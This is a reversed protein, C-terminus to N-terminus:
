GAEEEAVARVAAVFREADALLDAAARLDTVGLAEYDSRQRIRFADELTRGVEQPVRGTAIFLHASRRHTGSHTKPSEGEGLLAATAAYYTAYYARNVATEGDGRDLNARAAELARDAKEILAIQRPTM